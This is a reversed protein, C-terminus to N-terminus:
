NESINRLSKVVALSDCIEVTLVLEKQAEKGQIWYNRCPENKVISKSFDIEGDLLVQMVDLSDIGTSNMTQKVEDDFSIKKQSIIHLIRDNPLWNCSANKGGLIFFVLILGIVFGFGYLTFRTKMDDM